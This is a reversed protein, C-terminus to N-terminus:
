IIILIFVNKNLDHLNSEHSVNLSNDNFSSENFSNMRQTSVSKLFNMETQDVDSKDEIFNNFKSNRKIKHDTMECERLDFTVQFKKEFSEAFDPYIDLVDLLDSREIKHLDCYSLARVDCSSRGMVDKEQYKGLNEGFIDNKDLIAMVENNKVIELTGRAIFYFANLNDGKHILTDGPPTKEISKLKFIIEKFNLDNEIVHTSKFQLALMRLCGDGADEFAPCRNLLQRNLHLCIDAQLSEPFSKLVTNM